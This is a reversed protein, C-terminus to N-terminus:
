VSVSGWLGARKILADTVYEEPIGALVQAALTRIRPSKARLAEILVDVGRDAGASQRRRTAREDPDVAHRDGAADGDERQEVSRRLGGEGVPVRQM